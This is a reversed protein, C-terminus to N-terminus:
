IAPLLTEYLLTEEIHELAKISGSLMLLAKTLDNKDLAQLNDLSLSQFYAM